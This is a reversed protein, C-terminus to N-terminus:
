AEVEVVLMPDLAGAAAWMQWGLLAVGLVAVLVMM